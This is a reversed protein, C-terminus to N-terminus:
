GKRNCRELREAERRMKSALESEIESVWKYHHDSTTRGKLSLEIMKPLCKQLEVYVLARFMAKEKKLDM